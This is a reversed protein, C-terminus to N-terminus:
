QPWPLGSAVARRAALVARYQEPDRQTVAIGPRPCHFDVLRSLWFRLAAARLTRGWAAQEAAVLPRVAHYADLLAQSRPADLSGDPAGCWDNVTVALDFLFSDTGAFYFDIVGGISGAPTFLVNDRFLDAHVLGGPLGDGAATQEALESDLLAQETAPLFSRVAAAAQLRWDAGRPNPWALPFDAVALHLRALMAGVAACHAATPQALWAGPLRPVLIAPRGNVQQLCQGHRDALPAPCPIGRAALHSLLALYRPLEAATLREFLTLVYAGRETDVFYNSNEVGDAIGRLSQVEGLDYAALLLALDAASVATFVSM